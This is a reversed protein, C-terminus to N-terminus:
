EDRTFGSYRIEWGHGTEQVEDEMLFHVFAEAAESVGEADMFELVFVIQCCGTPAPHAAFSVADADMVTGRRLEDVVIEGGSIQEITETDLDDDRRVGMSGRRNWAVREFARITEEDDRGTVRVLLTHVMGVEFEVEDAPAPAARAMRQRFM